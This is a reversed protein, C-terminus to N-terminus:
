RRDVLAVALGRHPTEIRRAAPHAQRRDVDGLIALVTHDDALTDGIAVPDDDCAHVLKDLALDHTRVVRPRRRRLVVRRDTFDTALAMDYSDVGPAGRERKLRESHASLLRESTSYKM